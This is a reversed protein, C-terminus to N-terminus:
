GRPDKTVDDAVVREFEEAYRNMLKEIALFPNFPLIISFMALKENASKGERIILYFYAILDILDIQFGVSGDITKKALHFMILFCGYLVVKIVGKGLGRSSFRREKIAMLVGIVTDVAMMGMLIALLEQNEAGLLYAFLSSVFSLFATFQWHESLASWSEVLERFSQTTQIM